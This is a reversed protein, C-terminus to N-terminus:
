NFEVVSSRKLPVSYNFKEKEQMSVFCIIVKHKVESSLNPETPARAKARTISSLDVKMAFRIRFQIKNGDVPSYNFKRECKLKIRRQEKKMADFVLSAEILPRFSM